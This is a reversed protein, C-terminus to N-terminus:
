GFRPKTSKRECMCIDSKAKAKTSRWHKRSLFRHPSLTWHTQGIKLHRGGLRAGPRFFQKYSNIRTKDINLPVLEYCRCWVLLTNSFSQYKIECNCKFEIVDPLSAENFTLLYFSESDWKNNDSISRNRWVLDIVCIQRRLNKKHVLSNEMDHHVYICIVNYIFPM